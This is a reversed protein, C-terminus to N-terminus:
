HRFPRHCALQHPRNDACLDAIGPHPRSWYRTPPLHASVSQGPHSQEWTQDKASPITIMLPIHEPDVGLPDNLYDRVGENLSHGHKEACPHLWLNTCDLGLSAATGKLAINCMVFGDGQPMSLESAVMGNREAVAPPLLKGGTNRFGCASVVTRAHIVTGDAMTVGTARDGGGGSDVNIQDVKARVLVRGGRAEIAQVLALAM